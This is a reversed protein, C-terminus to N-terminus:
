EVILHLLPAPSQGGQKLLEKTKEDIMKDTVESWPVDFYENSDASEPDKNYLHCWMQNWPGQLMKLKHRIDTWSYHKVYPLKEFIEKLMTEYKELNNKRAEELEGNFWNMPFTSPIMEYSSIHIPFCGDSGGKSYVKGDVELRDHKPIGHTIEPKNRSLRWKWIHRDTRLNWDEAPGWFEFIPLSLMDVNKPMDKALKQFKYGSDKGCVEDADFQLCFEHMAMARAMSKQAGDKGPDSEDLAIDYVKLKDGLSERLEELREKTGDVSGGDVVIVEDAWSFSKIAEEFPYGGEICNYTTTYASITPLTEKYKWDENAELDINHMKVLEQAALCVSKPEIESICNKGDILRSCTDKFCPNKCGHRDTTEVLVGLSKKSKLSVPAVTTDTSGYLILHPTEMAAAGHATFTDIGIHFLANKVAFLTQRTSKGRLDVVGDYLKESLLGTQVITLDPYLAKLNLLIDAWYAYDKASKSGGPTFTAFKGEPLECEELKVKYDTIEKPFLNCNKAFEGFLQVAYEGNGLRWNSFVYQVNVGPNYVVDFVQSTLDTSMMSEQFDIVTIGEFGELLEQYEPRTAFYFDSNTHRNKILSDVIATSLLVDGTSRPMIYLVKEKDSERIVERLKDEASKHAERMQAVQPPTDSDHAIFVNADFFERWKKLVAKKSFNEELWAINEQAKRKIPGPSDVFKKLRRKLNKENVKAWSATKDIVGEWIQCEPIQVLEYEIPIFGHKKRLFDTHGSWDTAIVPLGVSAAELLPLGYGEGHTLTLMADIQPHRYLDYMEKDTLTDHILYVQCKAGPFNNKIDTVRKQTEEFDKENNGIINTKLVLGVNANDKFFTFFYRLMDAINKRDEGFGGKNGWQGVHLFNVKTPLEFKLLDSVEEEPPHEFWEPIVLVPKIIRFEGTENTKPNKWQAVTSLLVDRSFSSPVVVLDMLNCQQLWVATCQNVEIGATVGINYPAVKKFENPVTVQISIDFGIEKAENIQDFHRMCQYYTQQKPHNHIYPCHGWRINELCVIFREDELLYDMVQRAHVGYGSLSMVPARLHVVFKGDHM